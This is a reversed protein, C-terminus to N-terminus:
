RRASAAGSAQRPAARGTVEHGPGGPRGPPDGRHRREARVGGPAPEEARGAAGQRLHRRGEVANKTAEEVSKKVEALDITLIQNGAKEKLATGKVGDEGVFGRVVDHHMAVKNSGTYAIEPEVLAIRLRVNDGM